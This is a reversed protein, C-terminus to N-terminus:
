ADGQVTVVVRREHPSYRHEWLYVGQWTGLACRGDCVPISLDSGTLVSRVHAAMDDPGEARHTFMPDGDPVQASMFSEMDRMVSPDANESLMLSASTHCIFVHCLGTRIGSARVAAQVDRSLDYTGRGRTAVRVESQAIM